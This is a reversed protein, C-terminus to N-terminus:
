RALSPRPLADGKGAGGDGTACLWAMRAYVRARAAAQRSGALSGVASVLSKAAFSAGALARFAREAAVGRRRRFFRLTGRLVEVDRREGYRRAGSRNGRHVITAGTFYVVRGGAGHVRHCLDLDEGYMDYSEDFGGLASVLARRCLLFSGYVWDVDCTIPPAAGRPPASPGRRNALAYRVLGRVTHFRDTTPQVTGDANLTRCGLIAITPDAALHALARPLGGEEVVTDPNLFLVYTGCSAALGQNAAAGFGRNTANEIIRAQPVLARVIDATGDQSANEVVVLEAGDALPGALSGLLARVDDASRWTVVVISLEACAAM